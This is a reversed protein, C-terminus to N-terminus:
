VYTDRIYNKIIKNSLSNKKGNIIIRINKLDNEKAYYYGIVCELGFTTYKGIKLLNLLYNDILQEFKLLSNKEIWHKIGQEIVVFYDSKQFNNSWSHLPNDYIDVLKQTSLQGYKILIEALKSKHIERIKCRCTIILNLLDVETKYYYFLFDQNIDELQEFITEYYGKDILIEMLQLSDSKLYEAEAQKIFREIKIPILQYKGEFVAVHLGNVSLNGLDHLPFLEKKGLMKAKLLVKINHFDYKWSFLQFLYPYPSIESILNLNRKLIYVLVQEISDSDLKEFSYESLNNEALVRLSKELNPSEIMKQIIEKNFLYKELDRIRGCAYGYEELTNTSENINKLM